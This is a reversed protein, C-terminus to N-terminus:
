VNKMETCKALCKSLPVFVHEGYSEGEEILYDADFYLMHPGKGGLSEVAELFPICSHKGNIRVNVPEDSGM